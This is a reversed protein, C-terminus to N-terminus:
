NESAKLKGIIRRFGMDALAISALAVVMSRQGPRMAIFSAVIEIDDADALCSMAKWLEVIQEQTRDALMGDALKFGERQAAIAEQATM